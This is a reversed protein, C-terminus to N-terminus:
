FVMGWLQNGCLLAIVIGLVMFPAFPLTGQMKKKGVIVAAVGVIAGIWFSLVLAVIARPWGLILGYLPAVYVDGMGMGRGKTLYHLLAFFGGIVVALGLYYGLDQGTMPGHSFLMVRYAVSAVIALLVPSTIVMGYFADAVVVILLVVGILLWYGAQLTHLPSSVLQFFVNGMLYWWVFLLGTLLEVIPHQWSLMKHCCRSKGGYVAFSLLPFTDYWALPKKCFDCHSRGRVWDKGEVTRSVLVNLFSGISAGLFFLLVIMM